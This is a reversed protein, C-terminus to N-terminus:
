PHNSRPRTQYNSQQDAKIIGKKILTLENGGQPTVHHIVEDMLKMTLYVGLKGLPRQDIPLTLDPPPATHPDFPPAEDRLCVLLADKKAWVELQITGPRGQYGHVIINTFMENTALVVDATTDPDASLAEASGQIFQRMESLLDLDAKFTYSFQTV